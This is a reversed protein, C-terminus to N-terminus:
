TIETFHLEYGSQGFREVGAASGLGHSLDSNAITYPEDL